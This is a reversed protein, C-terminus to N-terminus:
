GAVITWECVTYSDWAMEFLITLITAQSPSFARETLAITRKSRLCISIFQLNHKVPFFLAPEFLEVKEHQLEIPYVYRLVVMVIALAVVLCPSQMGVEAPFNPLM